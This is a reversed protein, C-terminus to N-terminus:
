RRLLAAIIAVLIGFQLGLMWLFRQDLRRELSEFRRDTKQDLALVSREVKQDLASIKQDLGLVLREVKQDLASIMREIKQDLAVILSKLDTSTTTQEEVRAELRVLRAESTAM